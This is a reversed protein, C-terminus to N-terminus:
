YSDYFRVFNDLKKKKLIKQVLVAYLIIGLYFFVLSLNYQWGSSIGRIQCDIYMLLGILIVFFTLYIFKIKKFM